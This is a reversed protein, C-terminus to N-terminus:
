TITHTEPDTAAGCYGHLFRISTEQSDSKKKLFDRDVSELELEWNLSTCSVTLGIESGENAKGIIVTLLDKLITEMKDDDLWVSIFNSKINWRFAVKKKEALPVMLGVVYKLYTLLEHETSLLNASHSSIQEISSLHSLMREVKKIQRLVHNVSESSSKAYLNELPTKILTLPTCIGRITNMFVRMKERSLDREQWIHFLRILLTGLLIVLLSYCLYAEATRWLPPQVVITMNRQALPNGNEVSLARISLLHEGSSLNSVGIINRSVPASWEKGNLSWSYVIRAYPDYNVSTVAFSFTNQHHDLRIVKTYNLAQALPSNDTDVTVTQDAIRFDDLYLHSSHEHFPRFRLKDCEVAGELTGFLYHDNGLCTGSTVRDIAAAWRFMASEPDFLLIEEDTCVLLNGTEDSLIASITHNRNQSYIKTTGKKMNYALLGDRETGIYLVTDNVQYLARICTHRVSIDVRAVTEDKSNLVFLGNDTGLWMRDKDRKLLANASFTDAYKYDISKKKKQIRFIGSMRNGVCIEGTAVECLSTFIRCSIDSAIVTWRDTRPQYYCVGNDTAFWLDGESDRLVANVRDNVLSQANNEIHRYRKRGDSYMEDWMTVGDPYDAVWVRGKEDAFVDAVRNSRISHSKEYDTHLYSVIQYDTLSMRYVGMGDTAILIERDNWARLANVRNSHWDSQAFAVQHLGADYICIGESRDSVILKRSAPHYLMEHIQMLKGGSLEASVNVLADNQLFGAFLGQGSTIYYASGDAQILGLISSFPHIVRRVANVAIHYVWLENGNCFWIRDSQDIALFRVPKGVQKGIDMVLEFKDRLRNYFFLCGNGTTVWIQKRSDVHYTCLDSSLNLRDGDNLLDYRKLNTGDYRNAGDHTFFWMYGCSDKGIKIIKMNAIETNGFIHKYISANCLMGYMMVIICLFYKM